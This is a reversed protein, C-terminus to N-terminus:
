SKEILDNMPRVLLVKYNLLSKIVKKEYVTYLQTSM